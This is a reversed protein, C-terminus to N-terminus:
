RVESKGVGSRYHFGTSLFLHGHNWDLLPVHQLRRGQVSRLGRGSEEGV